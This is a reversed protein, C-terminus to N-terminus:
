DDGRLKRLRMDITPRYLELIPPNLILMLVTKWDVETGLQHIFSQPIQVKVEDNDYIKEIASCVATPSVQSAAYQDADFETQSVEAPDIFILHVLYGILPFTPLLQYNVAKEKIHYVEHYYICNLEQETLQNRYEENIIICPEKGFVDAPFATSHIDAFVVGFDNNVSLEHISNTSIYKRIKWERQLTKWIIYVSQVTFLLLLPLCLLLLGLSTTMDYIEGGMAYSIGVSLIIMFQIAVGAAILAQPTRTTKLGRSWSLEDINDVRIGEEFIRPIIPSIGCMFIISLTLLQVERAIGSQMPEIFHLLGVPQSNYSPAELFLFFTAATIMIPLSAIMGLTTIRSTIPDVDNAFLIGMSFMSLAALSVATLPKSTLALVFHYIGLCGTVPVIPRFKRSFENLVPVEHLQALAYHTSQFDPQKGELYLPLALLSFYGFGFFLNWLVRPLGPQIIYALTSLITSVSLLLLIFVSANTLYGKEIVESSEGVYIYEKSLLTTVQKKYIHKDEGVLTLSDSFELLYQDLEGVSENDRYTITYLEIVM